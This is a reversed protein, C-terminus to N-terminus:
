SRSTKIRSKLTIIGTTNANPEFCARLWQFAIHCFDESKIGAASNLVLKIPLIDEWDTKNNSRQFSVEADTADFGTWIAEITAIESQDVNIPTSYFTSGGSTAAVVESCVTNLSGM